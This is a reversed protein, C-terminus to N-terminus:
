SDRQRKGTQINHVTNPSLGFRRATESTTEIGRMRIIEQEINAPLLKRNIRPHYRTPRTLAESHSMGSKLRERLTRINIGIIESWEIVTLTKGEHTLMVNNSKNRNGQDNWRLNGPEYNKDNDIRDLDHKPSPRLGITRVIDRFFLDRDRRWPPWVKIGQAHYHRYSANKPNHCRSVAGNLSVKTRYVPDWPTAEPSCKVCSQIHLSVLSGHWVDREIGHIQCRCTWKRGGNRCRPAERLVELTGFVKGTLDIKVRSM